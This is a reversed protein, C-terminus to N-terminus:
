PLGRKSASASFITGARSNLGLAIEFHLEVISAAPASLCRCSASTVVGRFTSNVLPSALRDVEEPLQFPAINRLRHHRVARWFFHVVVLHNLYQEIRLETNDFPM